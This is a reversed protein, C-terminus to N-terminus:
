YEKLFKVINSLSILAIEINFNIPQFQKSILNVAILM